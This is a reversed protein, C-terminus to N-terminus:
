VFANLNHIYLTELVASTSNSNMVQTEDYAVVSKRELLPQGLKENNCEAIYNHCPLTKVCIQRETWLPSDPPLCRGPCVSGLLHGGASGGRAPVGWPHGSCHVTHMRKPLMRTQQYIFIIHLHAAPFFAVASITIPLPKKPDAVTLIFIQLPKQHFEPSSSM